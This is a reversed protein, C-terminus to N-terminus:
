SCFSIVIPRIHTKFESVKIWRDYESKYGDYGVLVGTNNVEKVIANYFTLPNGDRAEVKQGVSFTGMCNQNLFGHPANPLAFNIFKGKVTKIRTNYENAMIWQDYQSGDYTVKIKGNAVQKVTAKYFKGSPPKEQVQMKEGKSFHVTQFSKVKIRTNYEDFTPLPSYKKDLKKAVNRKAIVVVTGTVAVIVVGGVIFPWTVPASIIGLNVGIAGLAKSGLITHAAVFASAAAKGAPIGLLGGGVVIGPDVVLNVKNFGTWHEDTIDKGISRSILKRSFIQCNNFAFNYKEFNEAIFLAIVEINKLSSEIDGWHHWYFKKNGMAICDKDKKKARCLRKADFWFYEDKLIQILFGDYKEEEPIYVVSEHRKTRWSFVKYTM